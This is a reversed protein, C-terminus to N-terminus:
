DPAQAWGRLRPGRGPSQGTPIAIGEVYTGQRTANLDQQPMLEGLSWLTFGDDYDVTLCTTRGALGSRELDGMVDDMLRGLLLVGGLTVGDVDCDSAYVEILNCTASADFYAGFPPSHGGWLARRSEEVVAPGAVAEIDQLTQGLRVMPLGVGPVIEV